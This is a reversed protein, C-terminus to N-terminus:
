NFRIDRGQSLWGITYPQPHPTTPLKFRKIVEVSILNNQSSNDIILHLPTGKVWMQASSDSEKSQSRESKQNSRQLQSSLISKQMLSGREKIASILSITTPFVIEPVKYLQGGLNVIVSHPKSEYVVHHKWM